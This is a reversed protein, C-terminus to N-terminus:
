GHELGSTPTQPQHFLHRPNTSPEGTHSQFHQSFWFFALQSIFRCTDRVKFSTSPTEIHKRKGNTPVAYFRTIALRESPPSLTISCSPCDPMLAMMFRPGPPSECIPISVPPTLQRSNADFRCRADLSQFQQPIVRLCHVHHTYQPLNMLKPMKENGRRHMSVKADNSYGQVSPHADGPSSLASHVIIHLLLIM